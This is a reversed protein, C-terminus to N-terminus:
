QNEESDGSFVQTADLIADPQPEDDDAPEPEAEAEKQLEEDLRIADELAPDTDDTQAARREYDKIIDDLNASIGEFLSLKSKSAGGMVSSLSVDKPQRAEVVSKSWGMAALAAGFWDENELSDNVGKVMNYLTETPLGPTVPNVDLARAATRATKEEPTEKDTSANLVDTISVDGETMQNAIAKAFATYDDLEALWPIERSPMAKVDFLLAGTAMVVMEFMEGLVFVGNLNGIVAARGLKMMEENWREEDDVGPPMAILGAGSSVLQFLMPALRLMAMTNTYKKWDSKRLGNAQIDRVFNRTVAEEQQFLQNQQSMFMSLTRSAWNDGQFHTVQDLSGSQQTDETRREVAELAAEHSGTEELVSHYLAGGGFLINTADGLTLPSMMWDMFQRHQRLAKFQNSNVWDRVEMNANRWRNALIPSTHLLDMTGKPDALVKTLGTATQAPNLDTWFLHMSTLQKFYQVPKLAMKAFTIKNRLADMPGYSMDYSFPRNNIFKDIFYRATKYIADGYRKQVQTRFQGDGFVANIDGVKEDWAIAHEWQSVHRLAAQYINQPALSYKNDTRGIASGPVVTRQALGTELIDRGSQNFGERQFPFYRPEKALGVGNRDRYFVNIRDFYEDFFEVVGRAIAKDAETLGKDLMAETSQEGAQDRFTFGTSELANRSRNNVEASHFLAFWSMLDAKTYQRTETQGQQNTYTLQLLGAGAGGSDDLMRSQLSGKEGSARMINDIKTTFAATVADMSTLEAKKADMVSLLGVLKHDPDYESLLGLFGEWRQNTAVLQNLKQFITDKVGPRGQEVAPGQSVSQLAEAKIQEHRAKRAEAKQQAASRGEAILDSLSEAVQALKASDFNEFGDLQSAIDFAAWDAPTLTSQHDPNLKQQELDSLVKIQAAARAIPDQIFRKYEDLREQVDATFRGKAYKGGKKLKSQKLLKDIQTTLAESAAAEKAEELRNILEPVAKDFQEKTHIKTITNLLKGQTAKDVGSDKILAVLQRQINKVARKTEVTGERLGAQFRQEARIKAQRLTGALRQVPLQGKGTLDEANLYGSELLSKEFHLAERANDVKEMADAVRTTAQGKKLRQAFERNLRQYEKDLVKIDSTVQTKRATVELPTKKTLDVAGPDAALPRTEDQITAAAPAGETDEPYIADLGQQIEQQRTDLNMAADLAALTNQASAQVDAPDAGTLSAVIQATEPSVIGEAATIQADTPGPDSADLLAAEQKRTGTKIMPQGNENLVVEGGAEDPDPMDRIIQNARKLTEIVNQGQFMLQGEVSMSFGAKQAAKGGAAGVASSGGVMLASPGVAQAMADMVAKGVDTTTTYKQPDGKEILGAALYSVQKTLEQAGEIGVEKTIDIGVNKMTELLQKGFVKQFADNQLLKVAERKGAHGLIKLESSELVAMVSGAVASTMVATKRPIGSLRAQQYTEGYSLVFASEFMGTRFGWQGGLLAGGPVTLAEEPLAIGIGTLNGSVAGVGGGAVAGPISSVAGHGLMTLMSPMSRSADAFAQGVHGSGKLDEYERTMRMYEAGGTQESQLQGLETEDDIDPNVSRLTSRYSQDVDEWGLSFSKGIASMVDMREKVPDHQSAPGDLDVAIAGTDTDVSPPTNDMDVLIPDM